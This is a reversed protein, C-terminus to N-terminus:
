IKTARVEPRGHYACRLYSLGEYEDFGCKEGDKENTCGLVGAEAQEERKARQIAFIEDVARSSEDRIAIIEDRSSECEALLQKPEDIMRETDKEIFVTLVSFAGAIALLIIVIISCANNM